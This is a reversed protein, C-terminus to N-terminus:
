ILGNAARKNTLSQPEPSYSAAIGGRACGSGGGSQHMALVSSRLRIFVQLPTDMAKLPVISWHSLATFPM